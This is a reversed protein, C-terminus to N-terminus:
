DIVGEAKLKAELEAQAEKLRQLKRVKARTAPDGYKAIEAAQKDLADARAIMETGRERLQESKWRFYLEETAFDGKKLPKHVGPDYETPSTKLKGDDNLEAAPAKDAYDVKVVKEKKPKDAKTKETKTKETKTTTAM